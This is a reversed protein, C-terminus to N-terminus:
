GAFINQYLRLALRYHISQENYVQKPRSPKENKKKEIDEEIDVEKDIANSSIVPLTVNERGFVVNGTKAVTCILPYLEAVLPLVKHPILNSQSQSISNLFFMLYIENALYQSLFNSSM